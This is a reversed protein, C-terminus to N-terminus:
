DWTDFVIDALRDPKWYRIQAREVPALSEIQTPTAAAEGSPQTLVRVLECQDFSRLWAESRTGLRVPSGDVGTAFAAVPCVDNM